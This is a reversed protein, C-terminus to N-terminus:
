QDVDKFNILDELVSFPFCGPPQRLRTPRGKRQVDKLIAKIRNQNNEMRNLQAQFKRFTSVVYNMGKNIQLENEQVSPPENEPVSPLTAKRKPLPTCASSTHKNTNISHKSPQTKSTSTSSHSINQSHKTIPSQHQFNRPNQNHVSSQSHLIPSQTSHTSQLSERQKSVNSWFQDIARTLDVENGKKRKKQQSM